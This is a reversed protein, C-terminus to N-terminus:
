FASEGVKEVFDATGVSEGADFATVRIAVRSDVLEPSADPVEIVTDGVRAVPTGDRVGTIFVQLEEGPEFAPTTSRFTWGKLYRALLSGDAYGSGSM